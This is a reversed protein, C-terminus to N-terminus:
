WMLRKGVVALRCGFPRQRQRQLRVLSSGGDAGVGVIQSICAEQKEYGAESGQGPQLLGREPEAWRM